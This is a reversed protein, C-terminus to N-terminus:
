AQPIRRHSRHPAASREGQDKDRVGGFQLPALLRSLMLISRQAIIAQYLPTYDDAMRRATFRQDFRRRVAKRDLQLTWGVAQIADHVGGVICGTVGHDIVERVSGHDFALVPTACAMAEIMVLGFPEPWNIPFLLAAAEGLFRAKQAENIEGIFKVGATTL